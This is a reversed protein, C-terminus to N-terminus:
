HPGNVFVVFRFGFKKEYEENLKKLRDLVEQAVAGGQELKSDASLKKPNVGIAPHANLVSLLDDMRNEAFLQEIFKESLEIIAEYSGWPRLSLIHKELVPAPEFLIGVTRMVEADDLGNLDSISPLPTLSMLCHCRSFGVALLSFVGM